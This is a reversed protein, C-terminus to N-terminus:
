IVSIVLFVFWLWGGEVEEEEEREREEESAEEEEEEVEESEKSQRVIPISWDICFNVSPNIDVDLQSPRGGEGGGNETAHRKRDQQQESRGQFSGLVLDSSLSM